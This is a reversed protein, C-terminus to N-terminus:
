NNWSFKKGRNKLRRRRSRIKTQRKDLKHPAQLNKSPTSSILPKDLIITTNSTKFESSCAEESSSALIKLPDIISNKSCSVEYNDLKQVCFTSRTPDPILSCVNKETSHFQDNYITFAFEIAAGKEQKELQNAHISKPVGTQEKLVCANKEKKVSIVFRTTGNSCLEKFKLM